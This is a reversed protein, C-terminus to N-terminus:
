GAVGAHGLLRKVYAMQGVHYAEHFAFFALAEGTTPDTLGPLDRGIKEALQEPTAAAFADRMRRHTEKWRAEIDERAPYDLPGKVESGRAFAAGWGTDFSAGLRGLIQARLSTIHGLMWGIPNGSGQPRHWFDTDQLGELTRSVLNNNIKFILSIGDAM